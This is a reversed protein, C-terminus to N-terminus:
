FRLRLNAGFTRVSPYSGVMFGQANGSSMADDPDAYPMNKHIIWLNRGTLSLDIGKFPNIHRILSTPLSYTLSVERLKVYSADYVFAKDANYYYGYVGYDNAIRTANPKGDDTVGPLIVGGGESLPARSENGLDNVLATEPFLGTALGYYMDMNFMDGGHRVDILFSLALNKYKVTNSVSGIWDPNVNGITHNSTGTIEYYGDADVVKQGDKYIYDSGTITGYPQGVVANVTIGGQFDGIQLKDIGPLSVVKNRNRSWNVNITWSFDKTKVPTGFVSLEIGQNQINGANIVKYDYGTSTSVPLPVIQDVTNQKYYTADFGLRNNLFSMELGAEFSKTKEPKLDPNYKTGGVSGLAVGDIGTPVDYYNQTYLPPATNGVEAWNVRVKGNSLWTAEPILKSFVFGLSASPYYYSNNGKPLTSSQDRRLTLDLFLLEKLGFNAAAYIGDVEERTAIETPAEMPNATNLLAYLRPILLGGNTSSLISSINTQRVNGGLIGKFTLDQTINKNFNLMLDYNYESFSRKFESFKSVDISGIASREEQHENYNDLSVRGVIDLWDTAKYNLSINGFHRTRGDTEYNEYRTWYPNDWFIPNLAGVDAQNWTINRKEVFYMDKQEKVDVNTQWWERMNTMLNKSDYGTGYRGLGDIISSNVSASATLKNSINYSAGFNILDKAIRSNPMIGKDIFKTYGLKFYGKDSAGDISISNNTGIATEFLASPNNSAAVWPRTKMYNPSKDYFADWHYVQLTPDFKGGYSADETVPVVRDDVGDGNVDTYYFYGDPSGYGSGYGAGYKNQYKAFTSPDYKGVNVGTNFTVGFGRAGKKTTIMVVGNSARSGYLATAAAGKLVSVSEVDDPNIDAAANGYDYGGVGETQDKTNTNSNDIPVGDVVFLAQNNGTLSKAGRLVINTSGGLTNNKRIELGSVKGALSTTINVDRTRNLDEPAVIQASYPLENKNRKVNLATVVVEQLNQDDSKLAINVTGSSGVPINQAIYGVSRIILVADPKANLKFFGDQDTTTGTNTGKIQVTAFPVPSGDPGTVKGTVQRQQAYTLTVSVMLMTFFLLARKM